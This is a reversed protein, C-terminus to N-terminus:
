GRRAARRSAKLPNMKRGKNAWDARLREFEEFPSFPCGTVVQPQGDESYGAFRCKITPNTYESTYSICCFTEPSVKHCVKSEVPPKSEPDGYHFCYMPIVNSVGEEVKQHVQAPTLVSKPARVGEQKGKYKNRAM